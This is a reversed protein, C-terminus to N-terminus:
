SRNQAPGRMDEVEEAVRAAEPEVREVEARAPRRKDINGALGEVHAPLVHAEVVELPGGEHLAVGEVEQFPRRLVIVQDDEIRGGEDLRFLLELLALFPVDVEVLLRQPAEGVLPVEEGKGTGVMHLPRPEPVHHADGRVAAGIDVKDALQRLRAVVGDEQRNGFRLVQLPEYHAPLFAARKVQGAFQM